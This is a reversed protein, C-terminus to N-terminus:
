GPTTMVAQVVVVSRVTTSQGSLDRNEDVLPIIADV